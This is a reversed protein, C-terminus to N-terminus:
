GLRELVAVAQEPSREALGRLADAGFFVITTGPEAVATRPTAIRHLMDRVGVFEDVGVHFLPAGETNAGEHVAIRGRAVLCALAPPAGSPIVVTREEFTQISQMCKLM